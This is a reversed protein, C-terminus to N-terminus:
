AIEILISIKLIIIGIYTSTARAYGGGGKGFDRDYVKGNQSIYNLIDFNLCPIKGTIIRVILKM